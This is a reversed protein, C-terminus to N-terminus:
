KCEPYDVFLVEKIDKPKCGLANAAIEIMSLDNDKLGDFAECETFDYADFDFYTFVKGNYVPYAAFDNDDTYFDGAIYDEISLIEPVGNDKIVKKEFKEILWVSDDFKTIHKENLQQKFYELNKEAHAIAEEPTNFDGGTEIGYVTNDIFDTNLFDMYILTQWTLGCTGKKNVKYFNPIAQIFYNGIQKFTEM